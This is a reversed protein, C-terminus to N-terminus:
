AFGRSIFNLSASNRLSVYDVYCAGVYDKDASKVCFRSAGSRWAALSSVAYGQQFKCKKRIRLPIFLEAYAVFILERLTLINMTGFWIDFILHRKVNRSLCVWNSNWLLFRLLTLHKRLLKLRVLLMIISFTMKMNQMSKIVYM